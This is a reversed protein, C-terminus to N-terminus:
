EADGRLDRMRLGGRWLAHLGLVTIPIFGAIHYGIAFSVATGAAIGYLALSERAAAEFVGFFGPSSPIAVSSAIVAQMLLAASWPVAIGFAKFGLWFSAASVLWVVISWAVAAAFKRPQKLAELGQVMGELVDAIRDTWAPQLVLGLARHALRILPGPWQVLALAAALMGGFLIGGSAALREISIGFVAAHPEFGAAATAVTLMAVLTIGDLIREVAISALATSFRVGTFRSAAFARAPEGGRAPLLNNAMFGIATAHWLPGFPLTEGELRLLYRWRVTRLPFALTAATISLLFWGLHARGLHGRVEDLQVDRMAWWLLALTIV